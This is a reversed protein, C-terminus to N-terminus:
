IGNSTGTTGADVADDNTSTTSSDTPTEAPATVAGCKGDEGLVMNDPCVCTETAVAFSGGSENCAMVKALKAREAQGRTGDRTGDATICEGSDADLTDAVPCTCVKAVDDYSGATEGCAVLLEQNLQAAFDQTSDIGNEDTNDITNVPEPEGVQETGPESISICGAGVLVLVALTFALKKM